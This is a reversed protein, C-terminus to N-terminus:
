IGEDNEPHLRRYRNVDKSLCVLESRMKVIEASAQEFKKLNVAIRIDEIALSLESARTILTDADPPILGAIDRISEKLERYQALIKDRKEQIVDQSSKYADEACERAKRALYIAKRYSRNSAYDKAKKFLAVAEDWKEPSFRDAEICLASDLVESTRDRESRWQRRLKASPTKEVIKQLEAQIEGSIEQRLKHSDSFSFGSLFLVLLVPLCLGIPLLHGHIRGTDEQIASSCM